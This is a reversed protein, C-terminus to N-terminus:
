REVSEVPIYNLLYRYIRHNEWDDRENLEALKQLKDLM